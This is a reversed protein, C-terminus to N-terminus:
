RGRQFWRDIEALKFQVWTPRGHNCQGSRETAEMDRLLQEMEALSLRRGARVSGHCAMRSLLAEALEESRRSDEHRMLDTVLDKVLGAWDLGGLEAPAARLVLEEPGLRALDFGMEELEHVSAEACEAEARTVRVVLPVLLSQRVIVRAARAAKLREYTIREHAAHMDVLVLGHANQALIYIGHLQAVAHGLPLDDTVEPQDPSSPIPDAVRPNLAAYLALQEHVAGVPAPYLRQEPRATVPESRAIRALPATSVVSGARTAALAERVGHFLFDHVVRPARFRVELKAPHANVDVEAPDIELYLVYAPQRGHFLVDRYAERAAHAVQRDRVMRGNVYLYQLDAQSRSFTPPAIWGTLALGSAQHLIPLVCEAFAHGCLVTLRARRAAETEGAILTHMLRANHRLTFGVEHRALAIRRFVEEAHTFETRASRLFKRRAPISFFLEALEVTTGVAHAAPRIDGAELRWAHEADRTHTTLTLQGAAAMSALAEGRFGLTRVTFLDDQTALKSTAHRALALPLDDRHIGCGDDRVRILRMGGDEIEVEIRRAGADLSNELLEKLVSAPREIVEGAAIQCVLEEPLVRIRM